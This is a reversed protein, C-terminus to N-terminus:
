EAYRPAYVWSGSETFSGEEVYIYSGLSNSYVWPQFEVYVWGLWSETNAWGEADVAWTDLYMEGGGGGGAGEPVTLNEGTTDYAINDFYFPDMGKEDGAAGRSLAIALLNVVTDAEPNQRFFWAGETSSPIQTQTTYEGGQIYAEYYNLNFNVVLWISYTTDAELVDFSEYGDGNRGELNDNSVNIRQMVNYSNYREVLLETPGFNSLGWVVDVIAKREGGSGDPVTPQEIELYITIPGGSTRSAANMDAGLDIVTFLNSTEDFLEGPDVSLMGDVIESHASSESITTYDTVNEPKTDGDFTNVMTWDAQLGSVAFLSAISTISLLHKM